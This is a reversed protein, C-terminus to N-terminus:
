TDDRRRQVERLQDIMDIAGRHLTGQEESLAQRFALLIRTLGLSSEVASRIEPTPTSALSRETQEIVTRLEDESLSQVAQCAHAIRLGVEVLEEPTM